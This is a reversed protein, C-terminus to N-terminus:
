PRCGKLVSELQVDSFSGGADTRYYQRPTTQKPYGYTVDNIYPAVTADLRICNDTCTISLGSYFQSSDITLPASKDPAQLLLNIADQVTIVKGLPTNLSGHVSIADTTPSPEPFLISTNDM